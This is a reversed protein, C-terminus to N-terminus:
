VFTVKVTAIGHAPVSVAFGGRAVKASSNAVPRGLLDVEVAEV